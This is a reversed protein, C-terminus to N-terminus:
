VTELFALPVFGAFNRTKKTFSFPAAAVAGAFHLVPAAAELWNRPPRAAFELNLRREQPSCRHNRFGAMMSPKM